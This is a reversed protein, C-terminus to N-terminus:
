IIDHQRSLQTGNTICFKWSLTRLADPSRIELVGSSAVPLIRGSGATPVVAANCTRCPFHFISGLVARSWFGHEILLQATSTYSRLKLWCTIMSIIWSMNDHMLASPIDIASVYHLKSIHNTPIFVFSSAPFCISGSPGGDLAFASM